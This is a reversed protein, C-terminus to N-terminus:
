KSHLYAAYHRPGLLALNEPHNMFEYSLDYIRDVVQKPLISGTKKVLKGGSGMVANPLLSQLRDPSASASDFHEDVLAQCGDVIAGMKQAGIKKLAQSAYV